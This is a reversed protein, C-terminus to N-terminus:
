ARGFEGEIFTSDPEAREGRAWADMAAKCQEKERIKQDAFSLAKSSRENRIWNRWTAAWDAKVGSRGPQAIWHDKFAIAIEGIRKVSLDRRNESAWEQWSTPLLWDAPM